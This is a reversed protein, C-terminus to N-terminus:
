ESPSKLLVSLIKCSYQATTAKHVSSSLTQRSFLMGISPFSNELPLYCCKCMNKRNNYNTTIIVTKM